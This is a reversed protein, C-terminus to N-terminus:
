QNSILASGCFIQALDALAWPHSAQILHSCVLIVSHDATSAFLQGDVGEVTLDVADDLHAAARSSIRCDDSGASTEPMSFVFGNEIVSQTTILQNIIDPSEVVLRIKSGLNFPAAVYPTPAPTPLSAEVENLINQWHDIEQNADLSSTSTEDSGVYYLCSVNSYEGNFRNIETQATAYAGSNIDESVQSDFLSYDSQFQASCFDSLGEYAKSSGTQCASLSVAVLGLVCVQVLRVNNM